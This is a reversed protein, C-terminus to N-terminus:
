CVMFDYKLTIVTQESPLSDQLIKCRRGTSILSYNNKETEHIKVYENTKASKKEKNEILGSFYLRISELKDESEKITETKADLEADVMKKIFNTEFQQIQDMDKALEFDINTDIFNLLLNCFDKINNINPEYTALYETLVSDKIVNDYIDRIILINSYLTCFSKPSIKKLFIQREWKSIDKIESLKQKLFIYKANNDILHQTINYERQLYETNTTPNLFNYLFKRKGMPTLCENLMKSVSSYKGSYNNDDIVNLQKLSHNAL